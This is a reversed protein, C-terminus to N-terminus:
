RRTSLASYFAEYKTPKGHLSFSHVSIAFPTTEGPSLEKKVAFGYGSGIFKGKKDFLSILIRPYTVTTEENNRLIGSLQYEGTIAGADRRFKLNTATLSTTKASFNLSRVDLSATFRAFGSPPKFLCSFPLKQDMVIPQDPSMCNSGAILNGASDYLQLTVSASHIPVKGSNEIRGIVQHYGSSNGKRYAIDTLKGSPELTDEINGANGQNTILDKKIRRPTSKTTSSWDQNSIATNNTQSVALHKKSYTRGPASSNAPLVGRATKLILATESDVLRLYVETRDAKGTISGILVADVLLLRGLKAATNLDAIGKQSLEQEKLIDSLRSREAIKLQSSSVIEHTLMEVLERAESDSALGRVEPLVIAVTKNKLKSEASSIEGAM